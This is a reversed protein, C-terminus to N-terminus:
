LWSKLLSRLMSFYSEPLTGIFLTLFACTFLGSQLWPSHVIKAEKNLPQMFMVVIVRLYYYAGVASALVAIIVLPIRGADVAAGFMALKGFFGVSPPIGALGFMFIGMCLGLFPHAIGHGSLDDISLNDKDKDRHELAIIVAFAGVTMFTYGCLYYAVGSLAEHGPRALWASLGVFVYGAHAVSSYALMRKIQTQRIAVFNGVVMTMIALLEFAQVLSESPQGQSLIVSDVFRILAAFSAAKVGAAMFATAPTPAGEYVDPAWMHFPVAAVKFGFGGLVMSIGIWGLLGLEGTKFAPSLQSYKISATGTLRGCEGYLLAIGFLAFASAFAGYLFYKMAAEQSLKSNRLYGALVYIALSMTEIGIFLNLLDGAGIVVLMGFTSLLILGIFEGAALKHEQLYAIAVLIALLAGLISILGFASFVGDILVRENFVAADTSHNWLLYGSWGLALIAILNLHTSQIPAPRKEGGAVTLLLILGAAIAIITLPSIALIDNLM